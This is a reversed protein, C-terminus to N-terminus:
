HPPPPKIFGGSGIPDDDAAPAKPSPKVPDAKQASIPLRVEFKMQIAWDIVDEIPIKSLDAGGDKAARHLLGIGALVMIVGESTDHGPAKIIFLDRIQQPTVKYGPAESDAILDVFHRIYLVQDNNLKAEWNKISIPVYQTKQAQAPLACLILALILLPKM